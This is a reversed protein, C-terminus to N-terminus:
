QIMAIEKKEKAIVAPPLKSYALGEAYGQGDAMM